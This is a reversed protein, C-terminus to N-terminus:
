ASTAAGRRAPPFVKALLSVAAPVLAAEGTAVFFRAVAMQEFSRASGSAATSVSWVLVGFAIVRTRSFPDALPGPFIAMMFGFSLVWVVGTLFGYQTNSLGLDPIIQPSFGVLMSRDIHAFVHPVLLGALVLYPCQKWNRM